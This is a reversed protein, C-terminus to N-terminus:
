RQVYLLPQTHQWWTVLSPLDQSSPTRSITQKSISHQIDPSLCLSSTWQDSLCYILNIFWTADDNNSTRSYSHHISHIFHADRWRSAACLHRLKEAVMVTFRLSLLLISLLDKRGCGLNSLVNPSVYILFSCKDLFVASKCYHRLPLEINKM